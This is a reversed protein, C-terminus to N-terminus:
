AARLLKELRVISSRGLALFNACSDLRLVVL